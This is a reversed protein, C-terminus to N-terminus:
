LCYLEAFPKSFSVSSLVENNVWFDKMSGQQTLLVYSSASWIWISPNSERLFARSVSRMNHGCGPSYQNNSAENMVNGDSHEKKALRNKEYLIAVGINNTNSNSDQPPQQLYNRVQTIWFNRFVWTWFELSISFHLHSRKWLNVFHKYRVFYEGVNTTM